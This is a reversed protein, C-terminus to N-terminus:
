ITPSISASIFALFITILEGIARANIPLSSPLVVVLREVAVQIVNDDGNVVELKSLQRTAIRNRM